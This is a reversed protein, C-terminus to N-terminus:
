ITTIYRLFIKRRLIMPMKKDTQFQAIKPDGKKFPGETTGAKVIYYNDSKIDKVLISGDDLVNVSIETYDIQYKGMEMVLLAPDCACSPETEVNTRNSSTGGSGSTSTSSSNISNTAPTGLLEKSVSKKVSKLLNGVQANAPNFFLIYLLFSYM